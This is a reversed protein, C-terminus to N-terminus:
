GRSFVDMRGAAGIKVTLEDFARVSVHQTSLPQSHTATIVVVAAGSADAATIGAAADEFALCADASFGLRKAALLYCEPSPKGQHVDEATIMLPPLPLRAAELRSMALARTASTVLAWRDVPLSALFNAAGPIAEIGRTDEIESLTIAAAEAEVDIGPLGLRRITEDTRVGHITPLFTEVDLGQRRAWDAWVREAAKISSLVTGDMDFLLAAFSRNPFLERTM